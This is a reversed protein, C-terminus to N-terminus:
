KSLGCVISMASRVFAVPWLLFFGGRVFFFFFFFTVFSFASLSGCLSCQLVSEIGQWARSEAGESVALLRREKWVLQVLLIVAMVVVM